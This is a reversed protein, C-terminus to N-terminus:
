RSSSASAIGGRIETLIEDIEAKLRETEKASPEAPLTKDM